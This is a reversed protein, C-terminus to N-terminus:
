IVHVYCLYVHSICWTTCSTRNFFCYWVEILSNRVSVQVRLFQAM